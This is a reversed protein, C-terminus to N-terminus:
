VASLTARKQGSMFVRTPNETDHGRERTSRKPSRRRSEQVWANPAVDSDDQVAIALRRARNCLGGRSEQNVVQRDTEAIRIITLTSILPRGALWCAFTRSRCRSFVM